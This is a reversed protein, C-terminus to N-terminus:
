SADVVTIVTKGGVDYTGKKATTYDLSAITVTLVGLTPDVTPMQAPGDLTTVSSFTGPAVPNGTASSRPATVTSTVIFPVNSAVSFPASKSYSHANGGDTITFYLSSSDTFKVSIYSNITVTVTRTVTKTLPTQAGAVAVAAVLTTATLVRKM